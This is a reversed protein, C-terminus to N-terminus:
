GVRALLSGGLECGTPLAPRASSSFPLLDGGGTQGRGRRLCARPAAGEAPRTGMGSALVPLSQEPAPLPLDGRPM